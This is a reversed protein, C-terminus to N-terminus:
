ANQKKATVLRLKWWKVGASSFTVNEVLFCIGHNWTIVRCIQLTANIVDITCVFNSRLSKAAMSLRGMATYYEVAKHLARLM